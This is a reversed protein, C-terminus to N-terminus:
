SDWTQVRPPSSERSFSIAVWELIVAHLIGHVIGSSGPQSRDIPVFLQVHSFCSIM